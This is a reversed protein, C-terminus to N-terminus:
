IVHLVLHNIYIYIMQNQMDYLRFCSKVANQCAYHHFLQWGKRKARRIILEYIVVVSTTLSLQHLTFIELIVWPVNWQSRARARTTSNCTVSALDHRGASRTQTCVQWVPWPTYLATPRSGLCLASSRYFYCKEIRRYWGESQQTTDSRHVLPISHSLPVQM